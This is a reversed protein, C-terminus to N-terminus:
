ELHSEAVEFDNQEVAIRGLYYLVEANKGDNYKEFYAKAEAFNEQEVLEIGASLDPEAAFVPTAMAVAVVFVARGLASM